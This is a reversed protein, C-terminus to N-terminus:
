VAFFCLMCCLQAAPVEMRCHHLLFYFGHSQISLFLLNYVLFACAICISYSNWISHVYTCSQAQRILTKNFLIWQLLGSIPIFARAM